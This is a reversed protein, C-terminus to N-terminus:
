WFGLCMVLFEISQALSYWLMTWVVNRISRKVIGNMSGHYKTLIYNELALSAVTRISSVAESALAASKAFRDGTLSEFKMELRIRLYGCILLPPLGGFITVLGLKWGVILALICSSALNVIVIIMLPMNFGLLEQLQTPKTTLNSTLSGVANEPKDFFEM